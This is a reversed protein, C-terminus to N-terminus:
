INPHNLASAARAEFEFRLLGREDLSIEPGIIKLAVKRRLRSDEALYVEGMGGSGLKSVITYHAFQAGRAFMQDRSENMLHQAAKQVPQHLFDMPQQASTLLSEVEKRLEADGACSKDLFEPRAEPPLELAEYFLTEVQRWRDPSASM